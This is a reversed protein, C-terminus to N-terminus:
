PCGLPMSWVDNLAKGGEGRGGFLIVRQNLSDVVLSHGERAPPGGTAIQTWRDSGDLWWIWTDQLTAVGDNGGFVIMRAGSADYVAAHGSRPKPALAPVAGSIWVAASSPPRSLYEVQATRAGSADVGGFVVILGRLSDYIASSGETGVPIASKPALEIPPGPCRERISWARETREGHGGILIMDRTNDYGVATPAIPGGIAEAILTWQVAGSLSLSWLERDWAGTRLDFGGYMLVADRAFDFVAAEGSRGFPVLGNSYVRSWAPVPDGLSLGWLDLTLSSTADFVIMQARPADYIAAHASMPPPPSGSPDIQAWACGADATSADSTGADFGGVADFPNADFVNADFPHAEADPDPECSASTSADRVGIVHADAGNALPQPDISACAPSALAILGLIHAGRRSVPDV